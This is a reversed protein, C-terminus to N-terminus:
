SFQKWENFESEIDEKVKAPIEGYPLLTLQKEVLINRIIRMYAINAIFEQRVTEDKVKEMGYQLSSIALDYKGQLKYINAIEISLLYRLKNTPYIEYAMTFAFLADEYNYNEKQIFAFDLLDDFSDSKPMQRMLAVQRMDAEEEAEQTNAEAAAEIQKVTDDSKETVLDGVWSVETKESVATENFASIEPECEICAKEELQFDQTQEVALAEENRDKAIFKDVTFIDQEPEFIQEEPSMDISQEKGVAYGTIEETYQSTDALLPEDINELLDHLPDEPVVEQVKVPESSFVDINQPLPIEEKLDYVTQEFTSAPLEAAIDSTQENQTWEEDDYVPYKKSELSKEPVNDEEQTIEPLSAMELMDHEPAPMFFTNKADIEEDTCEPAVSTSEMYVDDPTDLSNKYAIDADVYLLPSENETLIDELAQAKMLMFTEEHENQAPGENMVVYIEKADNSFAAEFVLPNEHPMNNTYIDIDGGDEKQMGFFWTLAVSLALMFLLLSIMAGFFSLHPVLLKPLFLGLFLGIFGCLLLVAFKIHIGFRKVSWYIILTVAMIATIPVGIHM